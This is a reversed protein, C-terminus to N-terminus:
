LPTLCDTAELQNACVDTLCTFRLVLGTPRHVTYFLRTHFYDLVAWHYVNDTYLVSLCIDDGASPFKYIHLSFNCPLLIAFIWRGGGESSLAPQATEQRSSAYTNTMLCCALYINPELHPILQQKSSYIM